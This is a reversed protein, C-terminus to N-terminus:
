EEGRKLVLAIYEGRQATFNEGVYSKIRGDQEIAMEMNELSFHLATETACKDRM